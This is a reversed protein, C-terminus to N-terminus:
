IISDINVGSLRRLHRLSGRLRSKTIAAGDLDGVSLEGVLECFGDDIAMLDDHNVTFSILKEQEKYFEYLEKAETESDNGYPDFSEIEYCLRNTIRNIYIGNVTVAVITLLLAAYATIRSKVQM